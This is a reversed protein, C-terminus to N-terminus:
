APCIANIKGVVEATKYWRLVNKREWGIMPLEYPLFRLVERLSGGLLYILWANQETRPFEIGPNVIEATAALCNVPRALVFCKPTSIVYANENLFHEMVDQWFSRPCEEREYVAQAQLIPSM